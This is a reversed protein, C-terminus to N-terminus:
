RGGTLADAVTLAVDNWSPRGLVWERGRLGIAQRKAPDALLQEVAAEFGQHDGPTVLVGRGERIAEAVGGAEYAVVPLGSAMAELVALPMGERHRTPLVLLDVARYFDGLKRKDLAGLFSVGAQRCKVALPGGGAIALHFGARAQWHLLWDVGKSVTLRGSYGVVPGEPRLGIVGRARGQDGPSFAITDVANALPVLTVTAGGAKLDRALRAALDEGVVFVYPIRPLMRLNWRWYYAAQIFRALARPGPRAASERMIDRASGHLIYALPVGSERLYDVASQAATSQSIVGSFMGYREQVQGLAAVLGRWWSPTYRNPYTGAVAHYRVKSGPPPFTAGATTIVTIAHGLGTLAEVLDQTHREMGGVGHYVTGRAVVGFHSM